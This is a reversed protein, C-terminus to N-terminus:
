FPNAGAPLVLQIVANTLARWVVWVGMRWVYGYESSTFITDVFQQGASQTISRLSRTHTNLSHQSHGAAASQGDMRTRNNKSVYLFLDHHCCNFKIIIEWRCRRCRVTSTRKLLLFENMDCPWRLPAHLMLKIQTRITWVTSCVVPVYICICVYVSRYLNGTKAM